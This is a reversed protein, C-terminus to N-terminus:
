DVSGQQQIDGDGGGSGVRERGDVAEQAAPGHRWVGGRHERGREGEPGTQRRLNLLILNSPWQWIRPRRDLSSGPYTPAEKVSLLGPQTRGEYFQGAQRMLWFEIPRETTMGRGCGGGDANARVRGYPVRVFSVFPQGNRTETWQNREKRGREKRGAAVKVLSLLSPSFHGSRRESTGSPLCVAKERPFVLKDKKEGFGEESRESAM